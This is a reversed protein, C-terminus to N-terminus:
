EPLAEGDLLRLRDLRLWVFVGYVLLLLGFIRATWQLGFWEGILGGVLSGVPVSVLIGTLYLSTVRGRFAESTHIQM